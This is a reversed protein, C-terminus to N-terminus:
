EYWSVYLSKVRLTSEPIGLRPVLEPCQEVGMHGIPIFKAGTSTRPSNAVTDATDTIPEAEQSM